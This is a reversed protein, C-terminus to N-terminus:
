AGNRGSRIIALSQDGENLLLDLVSLSPIFEGHLQRYQPARYAQYRLAIGNAAFLDHGDIYARSGAPSLYSDAGVARCTDVLLETKKCSTEPLSSTRVVPTRLGLTDRFWLILDTNLDALRTHGRRLIAEWPALYRDAYPARAYALRVGRAHTDVFDRETDIEVDAIRQAFRGKTRVPVTLMLEGQGSKVRNRQQWSRKAFQVTDLLVFVDAQDMLDFYGSWPLYSPQMIVATRAM